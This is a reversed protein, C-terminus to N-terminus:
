RNNSAEISGKKLPLDIESAPSGEGKGKEKVTSRTFGLNNKQPELMGSQQPGDDISCRDDEYCRHLSTNAGFM